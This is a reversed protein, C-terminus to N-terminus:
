AHITGGDSQRTAHSLRYVLRLPADAAGWTQAADHLHDKRSINEVCPKAPLLANAVPSLRGEHHDARGPKEQSDPLRHPLVPTQVKQQGDQTTEHDYIETTFGGLLAILTALGALLKLFCVM